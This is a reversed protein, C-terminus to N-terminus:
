DEPFFEHINFVESSPGDSLNLNFGLLPYIEYDIITEGQSFKLGTLDRGTSGAKEFKLAKKNAKEPNYVYALRGTDDETEPAICVKQPNDCLMTVMIDDVEEPPLNELAEKDAATRSFYLRVGSNALNELHQRLRKRSESEKAM